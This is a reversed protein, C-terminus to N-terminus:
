NNVYTSQGPTFYFIMEDISNSGNLLQIVQSKGLTYILDCLKKIIGGYGGGERCWKLSRSTYRNDHLYKMLWTNQIGHLLNNDHISIKM